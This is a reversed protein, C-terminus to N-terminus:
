LLTLKKAESYVSVGTARRQYEQWLLGTTNFQVQQNNGGTVVPTALDVLVSINLIIVKLLSTTDRHNESLGSFM